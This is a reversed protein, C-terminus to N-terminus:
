PEYSSIRVLTHRTRDLTHLEALIGHVPWDHGFNNEWAYVLDTITLPPTAQFGRMLRARQERYAAYLTQILPTSELPRPRPEGRDQKPPWASALANPVYPDSWEHVVQKIDAPTFKSPSILSVCPVYARPLKISTIATM